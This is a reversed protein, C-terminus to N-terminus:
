NEDDEDDDVEDDEDVEGRGSCATSKTSVIIVFLLLGVVMTILAAGTYVSLGTDNVIALLLVSNVIPFNLTPAKHLAKFENLSLRGDGDQDAFRTSKSIVGQRQGERWEDQSVFGDGDKDLQQFSRSTFCCSLFDWLTPPEELRIAEVMPGLIAYWLLIVVAFLPRVEDPLSAAAVLAAGFGGHAAGLVALFHRVAPNVASPHSREAVVLEGPAFLHLPALSFHMAAGLWFVVTLLAQMGAARSRRCPGASVEERLPKAEEPSPAM